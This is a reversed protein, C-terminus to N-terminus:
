YGLGVCLVLIGLMCGLCDLGGVFIISVRIASIVLSSSCFPGLALTSLSRPLSLIILPSWAPAIASKFSATCSLGSIIFSIEPTKSFYDILFKSTKVFICLKADSFSLFCHVLVVEKVAIVKVKADSTLAPYDYLCPQCCFLFLVICDRERVLPIKKDSACM